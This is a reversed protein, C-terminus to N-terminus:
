RAPADLAIQFAYAYGEKPQAPLAIHLGDARLDYTLKADSGLLAVSRIQKGKLAGENLSQIVAEKGSPWALEIAYLNDGKTTFRFDEATYEQTKTDQFSGAAVKTPGEGYSVWPRTGYIADGNVKLWGGVALLVQQVEDPITGDSRPGINMLLNGNKSVVDVLQHVIFDPTKFSDHEIYGWSKNGVSTDTQWVRDHLTDLQGREIDLVGSDKQMDVYKYTIIGVPGRKSSENYYYAAFKALYPRVDPQGIWWDFFIIDPHYKQVIEADRALWDNAYAHSVYTWNDQLSDEKDELQVQAPGYLAAYQPDNVDSPISRGGDMFWDHEIRHSSAGFHLGEARTAKELDGMLDRHPGMKVATWDSLNSDYMQFGDHHEFVPVVYRAGSEKFLHAWAQPDYQQAKFMPIFDKYGFKTPPGYVSVHHQNEESGAHYMERPYWESGFAPVSYVGWHIFIGFKADRYWDPVQYQSLSNWDPRFPGQNAGREVDALIANRPADYKASAKQWVEALSEPTNAATPATSSQAIAWFPLLASGGLGAFLALSRLFRHLPMHNVM